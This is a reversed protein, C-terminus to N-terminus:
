RVVLLGGPVRVINAPPANTPQVIDLAGNPMRAILMNVPATGPPQIVGVTLGQVGVLAVNSVLGQGHQLIGVSDRKGGIIGVNSTNSGGAQAQLVYNNKGMELTGAWNGGTAPVSTEPTPPTVGGHPSASPTPATLPSSIMSHSAFTGKGAQSIFAGDAFAPGTLMAPALAAIFAFTSCRVRLAFRM